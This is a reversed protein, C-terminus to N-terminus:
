LLNVDMVYFVVCFVIICREGVTFIGLIFYLKRVIMYVCVSM